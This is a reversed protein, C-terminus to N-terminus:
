KQSNQSFRKISEELTTLTQEYHDRLHEMSSLIEELADLYGTLYNIKQKLNEKGSNVEDMSAGEGIVGCKM